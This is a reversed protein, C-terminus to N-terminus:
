KDEKKAISKNHIEARVLMVICLILLVSIGAIIGYMTPQWWPTISKITSDTSYGNMVNSNAVTFLYDHVSERLKGLLYGDDTSNIHAPVVVKSSTGSFELCFTDTGVSLATLYDTKYGEGFGIADTEQQGVFGWEGEVINVCLAENVSCWVLGLRNFGQMVTQAGGTSLAGEFGRLSGERFAQETFFLSVGQRYDEQDNAVLHKPGAHVGKAEIAAVEITMSINTLAADESYYEFNRGSFPTRHLNGGPMWAQAMGLYMAEEGMLEARRAILEKNLTSAMVMQCPFATNDRGDGYLEANFTGSGGLGDPGDGVIVAPKGVSTIEATGFGDAILLCMEDITMQTIYTEWMPDDYELGILAALPIDQNDGQTYESVSPADEPKEYYYGKLLEIMEPTATLSIAEIPFTSEWDVRSLYTITDELWYNIDADDFQNTVEEGTYQSLKYKQDDFEESWEYVKDSNGDTADGLVDVMGSAGKSALVNNLADHADDGISIYYDGESLIYGKTNTYDYSALEYRDCEIIVTENQGPELMGTKGFDILQIASKEVLNEKEYDGYPTQAYVQVTSKGATSGTNTVTVTVTIDDEGVQVSDLTQEFTTYSLGYGFPFTVEDTYNWANSTSSGPATSANGQGM